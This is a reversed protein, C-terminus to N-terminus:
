LTFISRVLMNAIKFDETCFSWISIDPFLREFDQIFLRLKDFIIRLEEDAIIVVSVSKGQQLYLNKQEQKIFNLQRKSKTMEQVMAVVGALGGGLLQPDVSKTEKFNFSYLCVGGPKLVHLQSLSKEWDFENLSPLMWLSIALLILSILFISHSGIKVLWSDPEPLDHWISGIGIGLFALPLGLIALGFYRKIFGGSKHILKNLQLALPILLLVGLGVSGIYFAISSFERIVWIIVLYVGFIIFYQTKEHFDRFISRSVGKFLSTMLFIIGLYLFVWASYQYFNELIYYDFIIYFVRACVVSSFGLIAYGTAKLRDKRYSRVFYLLIFFGITIEVFNIGINLERLFDM